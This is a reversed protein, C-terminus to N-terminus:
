FLGAKGERGTGAAHELINGAGATNATKGARLRHQQPPIEWPSLEIEELAYRNLLAKDPPQGRGYVDRLFVATFWHAPSLQLEECGAM